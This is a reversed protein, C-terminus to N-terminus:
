MARRLPVVSGGRPPEPQGYMPNGRLWDNLEEREQDMGIYRITQQLGEHDLMLSVQILARQHGLGESLAKLFARAGSRRLTHMGEGLHDVSKGSRTGQVGLDTLVRKAVREMAGVPIDPQLRMEGRSRSPVLLWDPHERMMTAPVQYGMERAYARLWAQMEDALEPTIGTVTWRDRKERWLRIEGRALDLDSLRIVKIESQRALTYLALAVIAREVPHHAEAAELAAPFEAADLYYKPQREHKRTRYGELLRAATFGPRLLGWKEAWELFRKLSELNNNRNGQSGGLDGFFRAVCEHDVQGMTAAPGKVAQCARAFRRAAIGHRRVTGESMGRGAQYELFRPVADAVKVPM